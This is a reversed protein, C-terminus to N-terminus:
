SMLAVLVLSSVWVYVFFVRNKSRFPKIILVPSVAVLGGM